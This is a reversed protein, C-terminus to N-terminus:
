IVCTRESQRRRGLSWAEAAAAWQRAPREGPQLRRNPRLSRERASSCRSSLVRLGLPLPFEPLTRGSLRVGIGGQVEGYRWRSLRLVRSWANPSGAGADSGTAEACASVFLLVFSGVVGWLWYTMPLSVYGRWLRRVGNLDGGSTEGTPDGTEAAAEESLPESMLGSERRRELEANPHSTSWRRHLGSTFRHQLSNRM